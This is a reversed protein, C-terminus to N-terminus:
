EEEELARVSKFILHNLDAGTENAVIAMVLAAEEETMVSALGWYDPKSADLKEMGLKVPIRDTIKKGERLVGPKLAGQETPDNPSEPKWHTATDNESFYEEAIIRIEGGVANTTPIVNRAAVEDDTLQARMVEAREDVSAGGYDRQPRGTKAGNTHDNVAVQREKRMAQM